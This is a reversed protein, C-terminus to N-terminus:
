RSGRHRSWPREVAAWGVRANVAAVLRLRQAGEDPAIWRARVEVAHVELAVHQHGLPVVVGVRRDAVGAADLEAHAADGHNVRIVPGSPTWSM